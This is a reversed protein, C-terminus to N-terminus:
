AAPRHAIIHQVGGPHSTVSAAPAHTSISRSGETGQQTLANGQGHVDTSTAKKPPPPPPPPKNQKVKNLTLIYQHLNNIQNQLWTTEATSANAGPPGQPGQAGPFNSGGGGNYGAGAFQPVAGSTTSTAGAGQAAAANNAAMRKYTLYAIVVAAFTLGILILSRHKSDKIKDVLGKGDKGEDDAAM